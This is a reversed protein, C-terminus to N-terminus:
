PQEAVAPVFQRKSSYIKFYIYIIVPCYVEIVLAAEPFEFPGVLVYEHFHKGTVPLSLVHRVTRSAARVSATRVASRVSSTRAIVYRMMVKRSCSSVSPVPVSIVILIDIGPALRLLHSYEGYYQYQRERAKCPETRACCQSILDRMLEIRHIGRGRSMNFILYIDKCVILLELLSEFLEFFYRADARHDIGDVVFVPYIFVSIKLGICVAHIHIVIRVLLM